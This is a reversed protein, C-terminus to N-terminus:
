VGRDEQEAMKLFPQERYVWTEFRSFQGKTFGWMERVVRKSVEYRGSFWVVGSDMLVGVLGDDFMRKAIAPFESSPIPRAILQNFHARWKVPEGHTM